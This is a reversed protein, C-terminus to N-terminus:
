RGAVRQRRRRLDEVNLRPLAPRCNRSPAALGQIVSRLTSTDAAARVEDPLALLRHFMTPVMHSTSVGWQEILRLTGEPTWRDMLVMTQGLHLASMGFALPAAHYLPGAVLHVGEGPEIDFLMSLMSSTAAAANPDGEPLPRRVGKPRGTTGSTYLM